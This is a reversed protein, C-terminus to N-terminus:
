SEVLRGIVVYRANNFDYSCTSLTVLRDEEGATVGSRFTSKEVAQALLRDREEQSVPLYYVADYVDTTYGAILELRYRQGPVYIYMVPHAEYYAQDLYGALAAFMTGNDMKHGYVITNRDTFDGSCRCDAFITGCVAGKRNLLRRLYYSNDRAQAVAYNIETDPAYIWAVVDRNMEYLADFDIAAPVSPDDLPEVPEPTGTPQGQRDPGSSPRVDDPPGTEEMIVVSNQLEEWFDLSKREDILSAAIRWVAILAVAGFFATLLLGPLVGKRKTGTNKDPEMNM